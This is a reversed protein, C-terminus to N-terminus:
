MKMLHIGCHQVAIVAIVVSKVDIPAHMCHVQTKNKVPDEKKRETLWM